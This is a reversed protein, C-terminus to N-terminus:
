CSKKLHPDNNILEENILDLFNDKINGLYKSNIIEM